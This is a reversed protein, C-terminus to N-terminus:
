FLIDSKTGKRYLKGSLNDLILFDIVQVLRQNSVEKNKLSYLQASNFNYLKQIYWRIENEANKIGCDILFNSALKMINGISAGSTKFQNLLKKHM